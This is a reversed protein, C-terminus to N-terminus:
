PKLSQGGRAFQAILEGVPSALAPSTEGKSEPPSGTVPAAFAVRMQDGTTEETVPDVHGDFARLQL